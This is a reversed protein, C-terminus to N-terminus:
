SQSISISTNTARSRRRKLSFSQSIAVMMFFRSFYLPVACNKFLYRLDNMCKVFFLGLEDPKKVNKLSESYVGGSALTWCKYPGADIGAM